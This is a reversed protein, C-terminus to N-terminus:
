DGASLTKPGAKGATREYYGDGKKEYKTFGQEEVRRNSLLSKESEYVAFASFVRRCPQGCEPCKSLPPDSVKQIVEFGRACFDCVSEGDPEYEYIPM